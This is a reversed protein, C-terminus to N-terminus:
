LNKTINNAIDNPTLVITFFKIERYQECVMEAYKQSFFKGIPYAVGGATYIKRINPFMEKILTEHTPNQPVIIVNYEVMDDDQSLYRDLMPILESSILEEEKTVKEDAEIMTTIMDKLQAVQENPPERYLYDELSKRLKMYRNEKKQKRQENFKEINYDINWERAFSRIIELEKPDLEEDIMALQHLINLIIEANLPKFFRKILYDAEKRELKLAIKFLQFFGLGRKGKIWLGSGILLFVTAEMMIISTDIISNFDETIIYYGIWILCNLLLLAIGAVSQSEAVEQEHKRKWIKNVRLYMQIISLALTIKVGYNFIDEITM